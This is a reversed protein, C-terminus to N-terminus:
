RGVRRWKLNVRARKKEEEKKRKARHALLINLNNQRRPTVTKTVRNKLKEASGSVIYVLIHSLTHVDLLSEIQSNPQRSRSRFTPQPPPESPPPPVM